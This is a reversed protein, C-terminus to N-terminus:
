YPVLLGVMHKTVWTKSLATAKRGSKLLDFVMVGNLGDSLSTKPLEHICTSSGATGFGDMGGLSVEGSSSDAILASM